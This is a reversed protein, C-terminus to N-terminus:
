IIIIYINNDGKILNIYHKVFFEVNYLVAYVTHFQKHTIYSVTRVKTKFISILLSTM